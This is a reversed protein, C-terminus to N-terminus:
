PLDQFDIPLHLAKTLAILWESHVRDVSFSLIGRFGCSPRATFMPPSSRVLAALRPKLSRYLNKLRKIVALINIRFVEGALLNHLAQSVCRQDACLMQGQCRVSHPATGKQMCTANSRRTQFNRASAFSFSPFSELCARICAQIKAVPFPLPIFWHFVSSTSFFSAEVKLCQCPFPSLIANCPVVM